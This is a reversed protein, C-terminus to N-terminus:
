DPVEVAEPTPTLLQFLVHERWEGDIKLYSPATGYRSFGARRLVAQSRVNDPVTEAQVRHLRLDGFALETADRVAQTALGRGQASEALWYGISCSQFFGRIISAITLAGVVAGGDDLIVLPVTNGADYRELSVALATRQADESFYADSRRPQWRRLYERNSRLLDALVPADDLRVLRTVAM